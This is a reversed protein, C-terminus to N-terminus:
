FVMYATGFAFRLNETADDLGFLVEGVSGMTRDDLRKREVYYILMTSRMEKM